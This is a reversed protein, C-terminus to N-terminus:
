GEIKQCFALFDEKSAYSEQTGARTVGLAAYRVAQVLAEKIEGTRVFHEAFCGIFSDGAGTSDVADVKLSPVWEESDRTLWLCGKSGLTVIVHEVGSELLKQAAIRVEDTTGAPLGTTLSLETENPVFFTCDAVKGLDLAKNAPAPNLLVPIGNKKGFAIAAYVTELPIELQLVILACEKLVDAAEEIHKPTLHENAGHYILIRNQGNGEVYINAVGNATGAITHVFHSDIGNKEYNERAMKGFADDGVAAVMVVEGGMKSAAVAQNAGKGGCAIHFGSATRTEGGQPAVDTYSVVDVMTSGIVAIKKM